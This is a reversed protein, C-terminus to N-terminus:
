GHAPGVKDLFTYSGLAAFHRAWDLMPPIGVHGFIQPVFGPDDLVQGFLTRGMPGFQVVDQLGALSLGRRPVGASLQVSALRTPLCQLGCTTCSVCAKSAKLSKDQLLVLEIFSANCLELELMLVCLPWPPAPRIVQLFPKLVPDGLRQMAAFNKALLQMAPPPKAYPRIVRMNCGRGLRTSHMVCM